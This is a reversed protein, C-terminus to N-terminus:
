LREFGPRVLASIARMDQRLDEMTPRGWYWDGDYRRHIELDPLLTFATPRYPEHLTDTEELLGLRPLWRREADSLILFRAGLGARLASQEAPPDVSVVVIRTYAVECEDQLRTLERLYRQEKPCFWGRSFVLAVPDGGAAESLLRDRGTHDPLDLDPFREGPVLKM